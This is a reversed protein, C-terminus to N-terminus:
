VRLRFRRRRDLIMAQGLPPNSLFGSIIFLGVGVLHGVVAM